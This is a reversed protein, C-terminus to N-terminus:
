AAAAPVLKGTMIWLPIFADTGSWPNQVEPDDGAPADVNSRNLPNNGYREWLQVFPVLENYSQALQTVYGVQTDRDLGDGSAVAAEYVDIEGGSYTVATDFNIGGGVEEG